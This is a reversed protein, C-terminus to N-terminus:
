QSLADALRPRLGVMAAHFRGHVVIWTENHQGRDHALTRPICRM